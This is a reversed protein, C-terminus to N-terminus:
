KSLPINLTVSTDPKSLQITIDLISNWNPGSEVINDIEVLEEIDYDVVTPGNETRYTICVMWRKFEM